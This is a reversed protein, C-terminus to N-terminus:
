FDKLITAYNSSTSIQLDNIQLFPKPVSCVCNPAGRHLDSPFIQFPIPLFSISLFQGILAGKVPFKIKRTCYDFAKSACSPFFLDDDDDDDDDDDHEHLIIRIEQEKFRM